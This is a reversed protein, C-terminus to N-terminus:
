PAPSSDGIWNCFPWMVEYNTRIAVTWEKSVVHCRLQEM